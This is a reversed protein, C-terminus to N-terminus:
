DTQLHAAVADASLMYWDRVTAFDQQDIPAEGPLPVHDLSLSPFGSNRSGRKLKCGGNATRQMADSGFDNQRIAVSLRLSYSMETWWQVDMRPGQEGSVWCKTEIRRRDGVVAPIDRGM